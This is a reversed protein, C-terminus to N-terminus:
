KHRLILKAASLRRRDAPTKQPLAALEAALRKVECRRVAGVISKAEQLNM